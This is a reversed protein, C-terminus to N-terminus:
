DAVVAFSDLDDVALGLRHTFVETIAPDVRQTIAWLFYGYIMAARYRLWAEEADLRPGGMAALQDRYYDLLAREHARRDEPALVAALHYAVDQAWEGKQLVQWDVLGFGEASRYINGAHADGHVLCAPRERIQAALATVGRQLRPADKVAPPLRTAKPGDLLAQLKDLPMIPNAGIQDLFRPVWPQDFLPRDHWGAAHLRALQELTQRTEELTFPVLASLFTSGAAIEDRMVIVGNDGAANLAAYICRPVRVPQHAACDRYFRTEVVSATGAVQTPTLIGKICIDTPVEEGVGPVELVLRVKTAQTVLTEVVTVNCVVADPWCTSLMGTLWAPDLVGDLRRPAPDFLFAM